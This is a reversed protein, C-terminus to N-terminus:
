NQFSIDIVRKEDNNDDTKISIIYGDEPLDGSAKEAWEILKIGNQTHVCEDFGINELEDHTKIRYLDIHYIPVETNNLSGLYQNIITFTPSSVLEHVKLQKCIGKIFETKGSGLDGYFSVSDGVKLKKGFEQGLSITEIESNSIYHENVM